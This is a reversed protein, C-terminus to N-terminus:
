INKKLLFQPLETYACGSYAMHGVNTIQIDGMRYSEIRLSSSECMFTAHRTRLTELADHIFQPVAHTRLVALLRTRLVPSFPPIPAAGTNSVKTCTRRVFAAVRVSYFRHVMARLYREIPISLELLFQEFNDTTASCIYRKSNLTERFADPNDADVEHFLERADAAPVDTSAFSGGAQQNKTVILLQGM